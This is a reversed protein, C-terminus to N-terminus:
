TLVGLPKLRKSFTETTATFIRRACHLAKAVFIAARVTFATSLTCNLQRVLLSM